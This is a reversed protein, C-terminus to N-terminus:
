HRTLPATIQQLTNAAEVINAVIQPSQDHGALRLEELHKEIQLMAQRTLAPHDVPQTVLKHISTLAEAIVTLKEIMKHMAFGMAGLGIAVAAIMLLIIYLPDIGLIM